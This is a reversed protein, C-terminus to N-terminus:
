HTVASLALSHWTDVMRNLSNYLMMLNLSCCPDIPVTQSNRRM